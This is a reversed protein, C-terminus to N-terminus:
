VQKTVTQQFVIITAKNSWSTLIRPTDFLYDLALPNIRPLHIINQNASSPMM